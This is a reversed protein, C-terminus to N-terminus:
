AVATQKPWRDLIGHDSEAFNDRQLRALVDATARAVNRVMPKIETM